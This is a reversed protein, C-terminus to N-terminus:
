CTIEDRESFKQWKIKQILNYQQLSLSFNYYFYFIKTSEDYAEYKSKIVRGVFIEYQIRTSLYFQLRRIHLSSWDSIVTLNIFAFLFTFSRLIECLVSYDLGSKLFLLLGQMKERVHGYYVNEARLIQTKKFEHLSTQNGQWQCLSDSQRVLDTHTISKVHQVFWAKRRQSGRSTPSM